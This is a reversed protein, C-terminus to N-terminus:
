KKQKLEGLQENMNDLVRVTNVMAETMAHERAVSEAYRLQFYRFLYGVASVLTLITAALTYLLIKLIHNDISEYAQQAIDPNMKKLKRSAINIATEIRVM